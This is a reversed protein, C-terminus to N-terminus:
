ACRAPSRALSRGGGRTTATAVLSPRLWGCRSRARAHLRDALARARTCALPSLARARALSRVCVKGCLDLVAYMETLTELVERTLESAPSEPHAAAHMRLAKHMRLVSLIMFKRPSVRTTSRDNQLKIEACGGPVMRAFKHLESTRKGYHFHTATNHAIAVIAQGEPFPNVIVKNKSRLLDAIAVKGLKDDLHM